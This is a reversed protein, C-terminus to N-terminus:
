DSPTKKDYRALVIHKGFSRKETPNGFMIWRAFFERAPELSGQGARGYIVWVTHGAEFKRAIEGMGEHRLITPKPEGDRTMYAEIVVRSLGANTILGDQSQVHEQLYAAVQDWRPKTEADYYPMLAVSGGFTLAMTTPSRLLRPLAAVGLGVLIFYPGTSWLLYRPLIIPHVISIAAVATPMTIAAALLITAVAPRRCLWWGGVSALGILVPGLLPVAPPLLEFTTHDAVRFMYLAGLVQGTLELSPAPTWHLGRLPADYNATAIMLIGPLWIMATALNVWIWTRIPADRERRCWHIALVSINAAFFWPAAVGLTNLALNMGIVYAAWPAMSGHSAPRTGAAPAFQDVLRVLGWLSLLIAASTLTYSRAEQGYQVECPSLSMLIGAVFGACSGGLRLAIAGTLFACLAGFAVSPLRLYAETWPVVSFPKVVWFYLPFHKNDFSDFLLNPLPLSARWLTLVEDYWLPKDGLGYLRALIAILTISFLILLQLKTFSPRAWLQHVNNRFFQPKLRALGIRDLHGDM